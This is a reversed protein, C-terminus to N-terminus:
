ERHKRAERRRFLPLEYRLYLWVILGGVFYPTIEAEGGQSLAVASIIVTAAVCSITSATAKGCKLLRIILKRFGLSVLLIIIIAGVFQGIMEIAM